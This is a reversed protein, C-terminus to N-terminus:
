IEIIKSTQYYFTEDIKLNSVDCKVEQLVNEVHSKRRNVLLVEDHIMYKRMRSIYANFYRGVYSRPQYLDVTIGDKTSLNSM